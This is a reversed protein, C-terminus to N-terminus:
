RAALMYRGLFLLVGVVTGVVFVAARVALAVVAVSGEAVLGRGVGVGAGAGAGVRKDGAVVGEVLGAVVGEVVCRGVATAAGLWLGIVRGTVAVGRAAVFVGLPVVVRALPRAVLALALGCHVLPDVLRRRARALLEVLRGALQVLRRVDLVARQVYIPTQVSAM